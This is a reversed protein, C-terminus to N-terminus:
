TVGLGYSAWPGLVSQGSVWVKKGDKDVVRPIRDGLVPDMRATFTDPPLYVLDMHSDASMVRFM